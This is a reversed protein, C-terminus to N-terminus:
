IIFKQDSLINKNEMISIILICLPSFVIYIWLMSWFTSYIWCWQTKIYIGCFAICYYFFFAVIILMILGAILRKLFHKKEFINAKELINNNIYREKKQYYPKVEKELQIM